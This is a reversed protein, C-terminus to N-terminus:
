GKSNQVKLNVSKAFAPVENLLSVFPKSYFQRLLANDARSYEAEFNERIEIKLSPVYRIFSDVVDSIRTAVGTGINMFKPLEDVSALSVLVDAVDDV